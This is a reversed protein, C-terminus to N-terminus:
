PTKRKKNTQVAALLHLRAILNRVLGGAGLLRRPYSFFSSLDDPNKAKRASSRACWRVSWSDFQLQRGFQISNPALRIKFIVHRAISVDRNSQIYIDIATRKISYTLYKKVHHKKQFSEKIVIRRPCSRHTSYQINSDIERAVYKIVIHFGPFRYSQYVYISRNLSKALCINEKFLM